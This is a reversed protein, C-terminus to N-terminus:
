KVQYHNYGIQLFDAYSELKKAFANAEDSSNFFFVSGMQYLDVRESHKIQKDLRNYNGTEVTTQMFKFPVTETIAFAINDEKVIDVFAPSTLAVVNKFSCELSSESYEKPKIHIVFQSSNAGVSVIEGDYESLDLEEKITAYFAFKYDHSATVKGQEDREEKVFQYAVEKFLSADKTKGSYDKDIGMRWDEKFVKEYQDNFGDKSNYNTEPLQVEIGNIMGLVANQPIGFDYENGKAVVPISSDGDMVFCNSIAEILGFDGKAHSENIMFSQEGIIKAAKDSDVIKDNAFVDDDSHNLILFRLMGLLSTQQPFRNSRIIYSSFQDNFDKSEGNVTFTMDGGFFFKGTPTLTILYTKSM